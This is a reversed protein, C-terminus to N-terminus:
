EEKPEDPPEDHDASDDDDLLSSIDNDGLGRFEGFLRLIERLADEGLESKILDFMARRNRIDRKLAERDDHDARLLSDAILMLESLRRQSLGSVMALLQQVEATIPTQGYPTPDDTLGVLWDISCGLQFAMKAANIASVNPRDGAIIKNIYNKSMKARYALTSPKWKRLDLREQLRAGNFQFQPKEEM